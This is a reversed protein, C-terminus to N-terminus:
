KVLEQKRAREDRRVKSGYIFATVIGALSTGSLAAAAWPQGIAACFVSSGIGSIAIILACWLGTRSNKIDSLIVSKELYQRHESQKEALSIIREAAGPIIREYYELDSPQPLPGSFQQAFVQKTAQARGAIL